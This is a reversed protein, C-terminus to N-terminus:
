HHINDSDYWYCYADSAGCHSADFEIRLSDEIRMVFVTAPVNERWTSSHRM